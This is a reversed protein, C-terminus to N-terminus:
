ESEAGIRKGDRFEGAFETGNPSVLTGKGHYEG